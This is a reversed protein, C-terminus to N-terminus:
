FINLMGYLMGVLERAKKEACQAARWTALIRQAGYAEFYTACGTCSLSFQLGIAGGFGAEGRIGGAGGGKDNFEIGATGGDPGGAVWGGAGGTISFGDLGSNSWAAAGGVGAHFGVGPGVRITVTISVCVKCTGEFLASFVFLETMSVDIGAGLLAGSAFPAHFGAGFAIGLGWETGLGLYDVVNVPANNANVYINLGGKIGIPDKCMWRGLFASYYRYGYNMLGSEMDLFQGQFGFEMACESSSRVTYDPNLITRVGFASFAYRETVEGEEDTIAAPNFYDMLIYRKENLTTGGVARDRRVLDDRHRAGWLYSLAATTESDKREEVPRWADNYYSHLTEEDVVRTVRRHTGDYTYNGVVEDNNKVQTIRSWADWKMELRGNWDGSADPAAQRMRGVRDLIMNHPNVEIQTLRNGRDHVRQQELTVAGNAATHYGRWNGTPDYNWDEELSPTGSIETLNINLSGCAAGSVQSLADYQYSQDQMTTLPRKQWTRRGDRDFGYQIHELTTPM